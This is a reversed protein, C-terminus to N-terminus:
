PRQRARLVRPKGVPVPLTRALHVAGAVAYVADVHGAGARTFVWADGRWLKEAGTLQADLMNQGSHVVTHAAVEKGLGMCVATVEGRIESVTM